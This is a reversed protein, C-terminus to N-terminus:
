KKVLLAEIKQSANTFGWALLIASIAGGIPLIDAQQLGDLLSSIIVGLATVTAAISGLIRKKGDLWTNIATLPNM